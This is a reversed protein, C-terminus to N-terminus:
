FPSEEEDEPSDSEVVPTASDPFLEPFHEGLKLGNGLEDFEGAPLRGVERLRSLVEKTSFAHKLEVNEQVAQLVRTVQEKSLSDAIPIIAKPGLENSMGWSTSACYEDVIREGAEPTRSIRAPGRVLEILETYSLSALRKRANAAFKPYRLAVLLNPNLEEAPVARAYEEVREAVDTPLYDIVDPLALALRLIRGVQNPPVRQSLKPLEDKVTQTTVQPQIRKTAALAIMIPDATSLKEAEEGTLVAKLSALVFNRVLAAKAHQLTGGLIRAASEVDRPFFPSRVDDFVRDLAAKGQVPPRIFVHEAASRLHYRVLEASPMYPEEASNMSPHACRNRDQQLRSLDDYEQHTFLEFEDRAVELIRREFELASEVDKNSRAVEFKGLHKAAGKDGGLSLERLKAVIDFVVATWLTVIAGRLAGSNYGIVSEAFLQRVFGDRVQLQLGELDAPGSTSM